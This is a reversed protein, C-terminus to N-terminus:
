VPIHFDLLYLTEKQSQRSCLLRGFGDGSAELGRRRMEELLPELEWAELDGANRRELATSLCLGPAESEIPPELSDAFRQAVEPRLSFGWECRFEGGGALIERPVFVSFRLSPLYAMWRSTIRERAPDLLLEHDKITSLRYFSSEEELWFAGVSSAARSTQSSLALAEGRACSLREVEEGIAKARDNLSRAAGEYSPGDGLARLEDVSFGLSRHLKALLLNASEEPAYLRYQTEGDKEPRLLGRSEYFRMSSASSGTLRAIEGILFKQDM